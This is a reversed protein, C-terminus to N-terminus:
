KLKFGRELKRNILFILIVSSVSGIGIAYLFSLLDNNWINISANFINYLDAINNKFIANAYFSIIYFSILPITLILLKDNVYLSILASLLALIAALIGYQLAFLLYYLIFNESLLFCRLGGAISLTEYTSDSGAIWPLKIKVLMIFCLTGVIMTVIASLIITICKALTYCKVNYGRIILLHFYNNEIDEAIGTSYPM